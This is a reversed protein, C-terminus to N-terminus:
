KPDRPTLPASDTSLKKEATIACDPNYFTRCLHGAAPSLSASAKILKAISRAQSLIICDVSFKIHYMGSCEPAM